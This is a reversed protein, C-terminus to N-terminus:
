PKPIPRTVMLFFFSAQSDLEGTLAPLTLQTGGLGTGTGAQLELFLLPDRRLRGHPQGARIRKGKSRPGGRGSALAVTLEAPNGPSSRGWSGPIDQPLLRSRSPQGPPGGATSPAGQLSLSNETTSQQIHPSKKM